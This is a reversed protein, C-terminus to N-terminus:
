PRDAGKATADAVLGETQAAIWASAIRINKAAASNM